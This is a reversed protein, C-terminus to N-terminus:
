KLEHAGVLRLGVGVCHLAGLRLSRVPCTLHHLNYVQVCRCTLHQERAFHAIGHHQRVVLLEDKPRDAVLPVMQRRTRRKTMTKKNKMKGVHMSRACACLCVSSVGGGRREIHTRWGLDGSSGGSRKGSCTGLVQAWALHPSAKTSPGMVRPPCHCRPRQPSHCCSPHDCVGTTVPDEKKKPQNWAAQKPNSAVRTIKIKLFCTARAGM